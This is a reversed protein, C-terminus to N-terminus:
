QRLSSREATAPSSRGSSRVSPRRRSFGGQRGGFPNQLGLRLARLSGVAIARNHHIILPALGMSLAAAALMAQAPAVPILRAAIGQTLILLSLESAQALVTAARLANLRDYRAVRLAAASLLPKAFVFLALWLATQLPSAAIAKPDVQMGVTVFFLGLLMDRFPALQASVRHRLDSEGVAVGALFAGITPAAGLRQAVYATGLALLLASLLFLDVSKRQGIWSLTARLVPRGLWLLTGLSAAAVVLQQLAPLFEISGKTSGSDIVVLFPLIAVDQFLLIGAAMRGHPRTLQRAQQLQRLAIGTSCMAAAGGALTAAPWPMGLGRAVLAAGAMCSAVQLVGAVFVARRAAWMETWSFELGAMFMLLILGLEALFRAGESASVLGFGLPGIVIGAFLYGLVAPLGVRALLAISLAAAGILTLTEIVLTENM